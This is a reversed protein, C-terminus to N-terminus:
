HEPISFEALFMHTRATVSDIDQTQSRAYLNRYYNESQQRRKIELNAAELQATYKEELARRDAERAAETRARMAKITDNLSQDYDTTTIRVPSYIFALLLLVVVGAGILIYKHWTKM